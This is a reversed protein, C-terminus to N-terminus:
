RARDTFGIGIRASTTSRDYTGLTEGYGTFFQFWLYPAFKWAKGLLRQYTPRYRADLTM